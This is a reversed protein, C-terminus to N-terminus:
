GVKVRQVGSVRYGRIRFLEVDQLRQSLRLWQICSVRGGAPAMTQRLSANAAALLPLVVGEM